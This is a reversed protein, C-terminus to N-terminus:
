LSYAAHASVDRKWKCGLPLMARNVRYPGYANTALTQELSRGFGIGANNVIAWLSGDAAM